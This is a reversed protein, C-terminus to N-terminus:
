ESLHPNSLCGKLQEVIWSNNCGTVMRALEGRFVSMAPNTIICSDDQIIARCACPCEETPTVGKDLCAQPDVDCPFLMQDGCKSQYLDDPVKVTLCDRRIEIKEYFESRTCNQFTQGSFTVVPNSEESLVPNEAFGKNMCRELDDVQWDVEDADLKWAENKPDDLGIGKPTYRDVNVDYYTVSQYNREPYCPQGCSGALCGFAAGMLISKLGM